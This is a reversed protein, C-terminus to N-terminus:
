SLTGTVTGSISFTGMPSSKSGSLTCTVDGTQNKRAADNFFSQSSGDPATLTFTLNFATPHFVQGNDLHAPAFTAQTGNNTGQGQGNANNVVFSFSGAAGCAAHGHFANPANTPAAGAMSAAAVPALGAIALGALLKKM